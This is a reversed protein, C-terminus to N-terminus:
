REGLGRQLEAAREPLHLDLEVAQGDGQLRQPESRRCTTMDLSGKFGWAFMVMVIILPIVTWVVELPTNHTVNSLAPQDWTKRRYKVVSVVIVGLIVVFFFICVAYTFYFLGDVHDFTSALKTLQGYADVPRPPAPNEASRRAPDQILLAFVPNRTQQPRAAAHTRPPDPTPAAAAAAQRRENRLMIWIMLALVVVTIAGGIRM